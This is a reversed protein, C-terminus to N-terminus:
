GTAGATGTVEAVADAVADPRDLQIMHKADALEVQRGYPSMAALRRHGRAWERARGAGRVDGLATLVVLPIPPFPRRERLAALDATMERYALEEALITGIVTGRGYVRRAVEPPVTDDRDSTFGLVLRRGAPGGLRAIRTVELATGLASCLPNLAASVRVASCPEDEYSPDVLVMGRVLEPHLRALAEAHLGAMSHALVTLPAGFERALGAMVATDRRLSPPAQAAPSLGLGPRDFTLTRHTRGLVEVTPDWDFWAGGLGSGILLPPGGPRGAEVVHVQEGAVNVVRPSAHAPIM